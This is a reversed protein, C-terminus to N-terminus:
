ARRRTSRAVTVRPRRTLDPLTETRGPGVAALLRRVAEGQNIGHEVAVVGGPALHRPAAAAITRLCDLGDDGAVLADVPEFPLAGAFLHPDGAAVYPPNSVIIDYREGGLAGFWDSEVFQIRARDLRRANGRAVELAAPSADSATVVADPRAHAIALAICGSGTGLDLVRAGAPRESLEHLALEVLVETEPRPVLVAPTVEVDIAHFSTSGTIYAVPEGTARRDVMAAFRTQQDRDVRSEPRAHLWGRDRGLAHALLIEADLGPSDSAAFRARADALATRIRTM